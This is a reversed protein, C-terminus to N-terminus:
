KIYTKALDSLTKLQDETPEDIRQEVLKNNQKKWFVISPYKTSSAVLASEKKNSDKNSVWLINKSPMLEPNNQTYLWLRQCDPCGFKFVIIITSEKEKDSLENITDVNTIQNIKPALMAAKTAKYPNVFITQLGQQGMSWYHFGTILMTTIIFAVLTKKDEKIQNKNTEQKNNLVVFASVCLGFISFIMMFFIFAPNRLLDLIQISIQNMKNMM